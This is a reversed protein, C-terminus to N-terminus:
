RPPTWNLIVNFHSLDGQPGGKVFLFRKGDASVDYNSWLANSRRFGKEFLRKAKGINLSPTTTIDVAM